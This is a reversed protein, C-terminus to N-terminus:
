YATDISAFEADIEAHTTIENRRIKERVQSFKSFCRSTHEGIADSIQIIQEANVTYVVGDSASWEEILSPNKEARAKAGMALLKSRDDTYLPIGDVTIGAVETEWRKTAAYQLLSVSVSTNNLFAAVDPHNVTLEETEEVKWTYVAIINGNESKKIWVIDTM